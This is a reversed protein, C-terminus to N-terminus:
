RRCGGGCYPKVLEGFLSGRELAECPSFVDKFEQVPVYAMALSVPQVTCVCYEANRPMVGDCRRPATRVTCPSYRKYRDM